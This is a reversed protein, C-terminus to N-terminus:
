DAVEERPENLLQFSPMPAAAVASLEDLHKSWRMLKLKDRFELIKDREEKDLSQTEELRKVAETVTDRKKDLAENHNFLSQPAYVPMSKTMREFVSDSVVAHIPLDRPAYDYLMSSWQRLQGKPDPDLAITDKRSPDFEEFVRGNVGSAYLGWTEDGPTKSTDFAYGSSVQRLLFDLTIDSLKPTAWGGGVNAHDGSFWVEVIRGPRIPDPDMLTPVFSDRQEDMAVMHYAQDVTDPISLDKFLDIKQFDIGAIKKPVGFAGVTDWCGLVSIPVVNSGGKVPKSKWVVWHRGLLRLTWISKPAGRKDIARALLRTIAAGRSFGFIFVKDGPQYVRMVDLYARDVLGTAGMGMAQGLVQGIPSNEFQNGVGIYYFSIQKNKYRKCMSADFASRPFPAKPSDSKLMRFLKFVNTQALQGMEYQDPSNNTGDFCVVINKPDRGTWQASQRLLTYILPLGFIIFEWKLIMQLVYKDFLHEWIEDGFDYFGVAVALAFLGAALLKNYLGFPLDILNRSTYRRLRHSLLLAVLMSIMLVFMTGTDPLHESAASSRVQQGSQVILILIFATAFWRGFSRRYALAALGAPVAYLAAAGMIWAMGLAYQPIELVKGLLDGFYAKAFVKALELGGQWGKVLKSDLGEFENAKAPLGMSKFHAEIAEVGITPDACQVLLKSPKSGLKAPRPAAARASPQAPAVAPTPAPPSRDRTQQCYNKFLMDLDAHSTSREIMFYVALTLAVVLIPALISGYRVGEPSLGMQDILEQRVQARTITM